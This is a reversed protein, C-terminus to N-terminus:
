VETRLGLGEVKKVGGGEGEGKIPSPLLPTGEEKLEIPNFWRPDFL